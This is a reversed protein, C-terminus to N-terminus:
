FKQNYRLYLFRGSDYSSDNNLQGSTYFIPANKNFLNNVGLSITGNWPAQYRVQIDHYTTAGMRNMPTAGNVPDVYEPDNCEPGGSTNFTCTEATGSFYRINWSAGFDGMSWDVGATSRTRWTTGEGIGGSVPQSSLLQQELKSIYSADVHVVFSGVSTEPVNYRAGLDYGQQRLWGYNGTGEKVYVLQHTAPNREIDACFSQEGYLYCQDIVTQSDMSTIINEIKIDYWDLSLSLNSLYSPSYVLGLTKTTSTEPQTNVNAGTKWPLRPQAGYDQYQSFNAPVGAAACNAAVDSRSGAPGAVTDCRDSVNGYDDTAGGYLDSITPARFGQGWNGRVMLDNIPKWKFGLKSNTTSGFNSYKSYRTAGDLTLEQVGPLDRLVPVMLELYGENVDYGGGTPLIQNGSSFGANVFSDPHDFGSFKDYEYGAAISVEGAPLNFIGGSINATYSQLKQQFTRQTRLNIYDLAAQDIQGREAFMNLPVCDAIVDGQTGCKVVGDTDMFSPGVAKQVNLMNLDGTGTMTGDLQSYNYGVDWSWDHEGLTFYGEFGGDFHYTKVNNNTSRPIEAMRRGVSLNQPGSVAVREGDENWTYGQYARGADTSSGLPNYYSDKSVPFSAGFATSALSAGSDFEGVGLPFGAMQSDASREDYSAAAHFSVNDNFDYRGQTYLSKRTMPALLLMDNAFNYGPDRTGPQYDAFNRPDGGPKLNYLDDAPGDETSGGGDVDIWGWPGYGSLSSTPHRSGKPYKSWSRDRAWVADQKSYSANFIVSSKDGSSGLTIDYQNTKGDRQGYQGLYVNAEAGNFNQRTIINVVGAIADSGYIASAGDKLVEVRDIISAPITSVDTGGGLSPVWRRGNVLVLTRATGLGRLNVFQGGLTSDANNQDARGLSVAGMAPINQLIDEVTNFGQKQIEARDVVFVPQSTEIDVQRIRSGTVMVTKLEKAKEPTAQDTTASNADQAFVSGTMVLSGIVLAARVATTLKKNHFKM